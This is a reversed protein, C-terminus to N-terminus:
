SKEGQCTYFATMAVRASKHSELTFCPNNSCLSQSAMATSTIVAM